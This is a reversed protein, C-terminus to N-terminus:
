VSLYFARVCPPLFPPVLLLYGTEFLTTGLGCFFQKKYCLWNSHIRQMQLHGFINLFFFVQMKSFM